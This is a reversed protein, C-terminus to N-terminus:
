SEKEAIRARLAAICLALAPTHGKFDACILGVVGMDVTAGWMGDLGGSVSWKIAGEPVLSLAEDISSSFRPPTYGTNGSPSKWVLGNWQMVTEWGLERALDEDLERDPGTAKELRTLLDPTTM